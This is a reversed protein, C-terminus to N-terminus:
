LSFIAKIKGQFENHKEKVELLKKDVIQSYRGQWEKQLYGAKELLSDPTNGKEYQNFYSDLLEFDKLLSFIKSNGQTKPQYPEISVFPIKAKLCMITGHFRDTVCFSMLPFTNAWEHPTLIHALNVDAYPNYMSLSIIQYGKAHYFDALERALKENGHFIFGVLQRSLDLGNKELVKKTAESDWELEHLFAPDPVRMVPIENDLKAGLVMDHTIQDRVGILSYSNLTKRIALLNEKFLRMDTRHGSVAYAIKKASLNESLWYINPYRPIFPKKVLDWVVMGVVLADYGQQELFNVMGEYGAPMTLLNKDLELKERHFRESVIYRQFNLLPHKPNPKLARAFEYLFWNRPLYNLVQVDFDPLTEKLAHSLSETFICAGPNALHVTTLIRLKKM